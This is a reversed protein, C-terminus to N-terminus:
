DKLKAIMVYLFLVNIFAMVFLGESFSKFYDFQKDIEKDRSQSLQITTERLVEIDEAKRIADILVQSNNNEDYSSKASDAIYFLYGGSLLPILIIILSILYSLRKKM